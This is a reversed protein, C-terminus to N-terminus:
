NGDIWEDLVPHCLVLTLVVHQVSWSICRSAGRNTSGSNGEVRDQPCTRGSVQDGRVELHREVLHKHRHLDHEKDSRANGVEDGLPGTDCELVLIALNNEVSTLGSTNNPQGVAFVDLNM